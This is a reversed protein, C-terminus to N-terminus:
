RQSLAVMVFYLLQLVAALAGVVYTMAAASLVSGVGKENAQIIGLRKLEISARRSADFEVPLTIIHFLVALAYLFVAAWVLGTIQMFIGAFLLIMWLNSSINVLPFLASRFQMPAWAKAHQIAHGVEHAAVAAATITPADYVEDSLNVTRNAPNYHDSLTGGPSRYVEVNHLGNANLIRQAVQAGTLGSSSLKQNNKSVTKKLWGQALLGLVLPPLIVLFIYGFM